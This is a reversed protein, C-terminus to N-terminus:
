RRRCAIWEKILKTALCDDENYLVSDDLYQRDGMNLWLRYWLMSQTASSKPNRYEFGLWRSVPKLGYGEVPLVFAGKLVKHLDIFREMLDDKTIPQDPYREFLRTVRTREYSHYHYIPVDPHRVLIEAVETVFSGFADGEDEPRDALFALYRSEKGGEVILLGHLYDMDLNPEGEIDYFLEISSEPLRAEAIPMVTGTMQSRAQVVLREASKSGIGRLESLREPLAKALDDVTVIGAELLAPKTARRLDAVLTVDNCDKAEKSCVNHWVCEGCGSFIALDTRIQRDVIVIAEALRREFEPWAADLDIVEETQDALIVTGTEPRRGQIKDLLMAYFCVQLTHFPKVSKSIKIEQPEYFWGGFNSEGNKKVLLDSVGVLRDAKLVGQYILPVGSRMLQLTAEAGADLDGDPYDPQVYDKGAIFEREFRKGEDLLYQEFEGLDTKLQSDGHHDLFLAHRCHLLSRFSSASIQRSM